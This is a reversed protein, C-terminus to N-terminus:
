HLTSIPFKFREQLGPDEKMKSASEPFNEIFWILFATVDVKDKLLTERKGRWEKKLDERKLLEIAKDRAKGTDSFSYAMDYKRELEILNGMRGSLSSIYISPTGLLASETVMTAGEGLYLSAYYLLHHIKEPPLKISHGKLDEGLDGESSILVRGYRELDKVLEMRNELGHHGVDHTANWSVLRLVTFTEDEEIGIDDLVAPDPHFHNPHLYALEKYGDFRIGKGGLNRKFCSPILIANVFPYFLMIQEFAHETDELNVCMKNMMFAAHSASIAGQGVFIDPNFSKVLRYIKIDALPLNILKRLPSCDHFGTNLYDFGYNDLLKLTIDKDSAVILSKHGREEMGKIFNKFFHVHSPHNMSVVFKMRGGAILMIKKIYSILQECPIIKAPECTCTKIDSHLTLYKAAM